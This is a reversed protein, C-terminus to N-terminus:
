IRKINWLVKDIVIQEAKGYRTLEKIAFCYDEKGGSVGGCRLMKM